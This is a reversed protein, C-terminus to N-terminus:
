AWFSKSYEGLVKEYICKTQQAIKEWNYKEHVRRYANEKIRKAYEQDLLVKTIGWALSDPNNSYVKVGTVDHEIIESLGGTDSAVVPSRAAMAELAVIGFPEFLSPVVSVDSCKQLKLLSMEDMFGEFLVKHELGMSRVINLLQEKMYGSGVIIFKANVKSLIKPVANILVHVGKEYVLRGVFLVIKEEPLAYKNRFQSCDLDIGDYNATNVGNPIMVLKDNPLGFVYRVHSIMYESCCIVKWAEYNLWAETEHIMREATTHLGDRRGIETSHMTVLLPKRFIHKLGIGANAVLWDHAHIVDVKKSITRMLAAAEKQMNMNMLYVWTAFDPSPNKYSDVRYIEVGDVVEHAPAGPFDCTIVYVKVDQKALHKSLFYIHPSIGGIVRPPYEWSLMMVSLNDKM